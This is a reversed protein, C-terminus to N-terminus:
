IWLGARYCRQGIYAAAACIVTDPVIQLVACYWFMLWFSMTSHLIFRSMFYFYGIGIGYVIVLGALNALFQKKFTVPQAPTRILNGCVWAQLAFAPLYGFTPQLIYGPGGGSAFVPIGILGMVTYAIVAFAGLRGGLLQGALLTALFQLTYVTSGIPIRILSGIAVFAIFSACLVTERISLTKVRKV